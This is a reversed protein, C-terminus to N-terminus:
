VNTVPAVSSPSVVVVPPAVVVVVPAVPKIYPSLTITTKNSSDKL